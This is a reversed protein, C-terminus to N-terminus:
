GGAFASLLAIEDGEQIQIENDNVIQHNLAMQYDDLQLSYKESMFKRLNQVDSKKLFIEESTKGTKDAVEGFYQITIM